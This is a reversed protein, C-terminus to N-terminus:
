RVSPPPLWLVFEAGSGPESRVTLRGDMAVALEHSIPSTRPMGNKSRRVRLFWQDQGEDKTLDCFAVRVDDMASAVLM